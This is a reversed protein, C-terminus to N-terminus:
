HCEICIGIPVFVYIWHSIVSMDRYFLCVNEISMEIFVYRLQICKSFNLKQYDRKRSGSIQANPKSKSIIIFDISFSNQFSWLSELADLVVYSALFLGIFTMDVDNSCAKSAFLM